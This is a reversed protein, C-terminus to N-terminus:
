LESKVVRLFKSHNIHPLMDDLVTCSSRHVKFPAFIHYVRNLHGVRPLALYHALLDVPLHVDIQGLEVM